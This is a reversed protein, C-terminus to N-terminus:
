FGLGPEHHENPNAGRETNIVLAGGDKLDAVTEYNSLIEVIRNNASKRAKFGDPCPEKSNAEIIKTLIQIENLDQLRINCNTGM